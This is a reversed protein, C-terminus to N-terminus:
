VDKDELRFIMSRVNVFFLFAVVAQYLRASIVSQFAQRFTIAYQLMDGALVILYTALAALLLSQTAFKALMVFSYSGKGTMASFNVRPLTLLHRMRFFLGEATGAVEEIKLYMSNGSPRSAGGAVKDVMRGFAWSARDRTFRDYEDLIDISPDLRTALTEHMIEARMLRLVDFDIVIGYHRAVRMLGLWQHTTTREHWLRISGKSEFAYLVHWNIAELDKTLAMVDIPPLPELLTVTARAMNLPDSKSAHYLNQQLARRKTKDMAGTSTFDIFTVTGNQGLIINDPHPEAVFFLSERWTWFCVWLIRRAVKKPDINLRAALALVELNNQEVAAILEWLWMGSVFEQVVVDEGSLEFHVRPASFFNRGSKKAQRRFGDQHRSERVFDLEDLLTQRLERRLRGTRGPKLITFFEMVLAIWDFVKLDAVFLEGVGPRRVKVVVKDGSRLVAQYTCAISTSVVPEPDFQAFTQPLPRSTVREIAAIAQDVPFPAVRDRMKSLEEGYQSRMLDLRMAFRQGITVFTGGMREFVRRLHIARSALTNRGRLQDWVIAWMAQALVHLLLLLRGLARRYGVRFGVTRM